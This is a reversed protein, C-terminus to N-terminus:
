IALLLYLKQASERKFVAMVVFSLRGISFLGEFGPRSFTAQIHSQAIALGVANAIGQGLPGTTVEVGPTQFDEPHGPTKSNLQRFAKLDDMSLPFGALHLMVYQLACAHGNSLLFRDRAIWSVDGGNVNLIRSFLVHALPACGMPAGPHGSNAKQVMEAALIRITNICLSDIESKM